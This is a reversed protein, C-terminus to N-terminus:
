RETDRVLRDRDRRPKLPLQMTPSPELQSTRVTEAVSVNREPTVYAAVVHQKRPTQLASWPDGTGLSRPSRLMPPSRYVGLEVADSKASAAGDKPGARRTQSHSSRSDSARASDYESSIRQGVDVLEHEQEDSAQTPTSAGSDFPLKALPLSNFLSTLSHIHSRSPSGNAHVQSQLAAAFASSPPLSSASTDSHASSSSTAIEFPIPDRSSARPPSRPMTRFMSTSNPVALHSSSSPPFFSLRSVPVRQINLPTPPPPSLTRNDNDTGSTTDVLETQSGSQSTSELHTLVLDKAKQSKDLPIYLVKRLHIPDSPWLQNAKRLDAM